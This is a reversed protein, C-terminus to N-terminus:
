GRSRRCDSFFLSGGSSYESYCPAPENRLRRSAVKACSSLRGCGVSAAGVEKGDLGGLWIHLMMQGGQVSSARALGGREPMGPRAGSLAADVVFWVVSVKVLRAQHPALPSAQQQVPDPVRLLPLHSSALRTSRREAARAPASAAAATCSASARHQRHPLPDVASGPPEAEHGQGPDEQRPSYLLLSPDAATGAASRRCTASRRLAARRNQKSGAARARRTPRALDRALEYARRNRPVPARRVPRTRRCRPPQPSLSPCPQCHRSPPQPPPRM